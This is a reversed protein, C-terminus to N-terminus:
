LVERFLTLKKLKVNEIQRNLIELQEKSIQYELAIEDQKQRNLKPIKFTKLDKISITRMSVGTSLRELQAMGEQSQMFAEVYTPNVKKEDLIIFYLNGNALIKIEDDINAMAVKFPSIRSLILSNDKICFKKYKEDIHSLNLLSKDIIGNSINQLMLYKFGTKNTTVLEDLESSTISAGRNISKIVEGLTIGDKIDNAYDIYRVPYLIYGNHRIEEIDLLKSNQNENKYMNTINKIDSDTLFNQRRGKTFIKTADLMKIKENNQSLIIMTSEVYTGALLNAPLSIIGEIIGKEVLMSRIEEDAENWTGNNTMLCICKGGPKMALYAAYIFVWDSSLTRRSDKFIAKLKPNYMYSKEINSIRIGVPFNSFVKTAGLSEFDQSLINGQIYSTNHGSVYSRITSIIINETNIEVGYSRINDYKFGAETLLNGSGSGMDLLIDDESISFLSLALRSLGTPTYDMLMSNFMNTDFFIIGAKLVDQEFKEAMEYIIDSHKDIIKLIYRLVTENKIVSSVHEKLEDEGVKAKELALFMLSLGNTFSDNRGKLNDYHNYLYKYLTNTDIQKLREYNETKLLNM